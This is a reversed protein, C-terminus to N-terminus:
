VSMFKYKNRGNGAPGNTEGGAPVPREIRRLEYPNATLYRVNDIRVAEQDELKGFRAGLFGAYKKDFEHSCVLVKRGRVQDLKIDGDPRSLDITHPESRGPIILKVYAAYELSAPDDRFGYVAVPDDGIFADIEDKNVADQFKLRLEM